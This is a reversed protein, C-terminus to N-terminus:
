HSTTSTGLTFNGVSSHSQVKSILLWCQNLYRSPATLCCAVVQALTWGSRLRRMADCPLLPYTLQLSNVIIIYAILMISTFIRNNSYYVYRRATLGPQREPFVNHKLRASHRMYADTLYAVMSEFWTLDLWLYKIAYCLLRVYMSYLSQPGNPSIQRPSVPKTVIDHGWQSVFFLTLLPAIQWHAMGQQPPLCWM